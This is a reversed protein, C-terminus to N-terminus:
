ALADCRYGVKQLSVFNICKYTEQKAIPGIEENDSEMRMRGVHRTKPTRDKSNRLVGGATNKTHVSHINSVVNSGM